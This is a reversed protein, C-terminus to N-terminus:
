TCETNWAKHIVDDFGPIELWWKEFRFFKCSTPPGTSTNLVLPTHDSGLRPLAKISAGPFLGEWDVSIFVRDLTAMILNDQNNAWTYRRGANKIEILGFKNIWDNFLDAWHQNISGTNKESTNRVM